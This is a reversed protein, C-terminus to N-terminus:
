PAGCAAAGRLVRVLAAPLAAVRDVVVHRPYFHAVHTAGAGIGIGVLDIDGERTLRDV